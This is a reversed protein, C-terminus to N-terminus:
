TTVLAWIVIAIFACCGVAVAIEAIEEIDRRMM